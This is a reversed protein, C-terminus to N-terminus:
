HGTKFHGCIAPKPHGSLTLDAKWPFQLNESLAHLSRRSRARRTDFGRGTQAARGDKRGGQPRQRALDFSISSINDQKEACQMQGLLSAEFADTLWRRRSKREGAERTSQPM